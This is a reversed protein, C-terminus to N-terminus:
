HFWIEELLRMGIKAICISHNELNNRCAFCSSIHRVSVLSLVRLLGITTGHEILVPVMYIRLLRVWLLLRALVLLVWVRLIWVRLIWVRLVWVLLLGALVLLVWVLLLLLPERLCARALRIHL